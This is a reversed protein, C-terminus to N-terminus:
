FMILPMFSFVIAVFAICILCGSVADLEELRIGKKKFPKTRIFYIITFVVIMFFLLYILRSFTNEM